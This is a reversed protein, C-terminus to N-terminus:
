AGHAVDDDAEAPGRARVDGPEQDAGVRLEAGAAGDRADNGREDVDARVPLRRLLQPLALRPIALEDLRRVVEDVAGVCVSVEGVDVGDGGAHEAVRRFLQRSLVVQLHDPGVVARADLCVQASLVPLSGRAAVVLEHHQGACGHRSEEPSTAPTTTDIWFTSTRTFARSAASSAARTFDSNTVFTLWSSRVGSLPTIPM